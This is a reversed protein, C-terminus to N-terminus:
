QQSLACIYVFVEYQHSNKCHPYITFLFYSYINGELLQSTAEVALVTDHHVDAYILNLNLKEDNIVFNNETLYELYINWNEIVGWFEYIM